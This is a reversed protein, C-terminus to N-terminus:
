FSHSRALNWFPTVKTKIVVVIHMALAIKIAIFIQIIKVAQMRHEQFWAKDKADKSQAFAWVYVFQINADVPAYTNTM